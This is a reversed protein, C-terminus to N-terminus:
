IPTETNGDNERDRSWGRVFENDCVSVTPAGPLPLASIPKNFEIARDVVVEDTSPVDHQLLLGRLCDPHPRKM